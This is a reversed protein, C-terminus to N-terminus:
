KQSVANKIYEPINFESDTEFLMLACETKNSSMYHELEEEKQFSKDFIANLIDLDNVKIIQPELTKASNDSDSYVKINEFEEYDEYKKSVNKDFDGDNDTVVIVKINLEKAIDLFRKFSLGRVNIVDVGAEIPLKEHVNKYAKQVILEDSPGEVLIAEKALILRLTDYGSLKKFYDQTDAPLDQLLAKTGDSILILKELGLKNLVFSSHTAIIIQKDSCKDEIRKLLTNMSSFSQHNEPEEILIINTDEAKRELALMIKLSNQEGNGSFQFPLDDLHPVLNTEWNAKQSIDIALALEKDTITGKKKELKENIATISDQEAFEERLRRYAITLAVREKLDLGSNIINQMYYDTGSQLRITTADIFSLGIPLSRSTIGRDAFSRWSVKYYEIPVLNIKDKDSLFSEYEAKFDDNFSLELRIGITDERLSNNSGRLSALEPNDDFYVEIFITPLAPKTGKKVEELFKYAVNSNILYPSLENEIFRGNLRRTLALNIAELITSKGAENDGVIINLDKNFELEFDEFLKYNHIILKKIM